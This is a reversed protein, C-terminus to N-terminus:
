GIRGLWLIHPRRSRLGCTDPFLPISICKSVCSWFLPLWSPFFCCSEGKQEGWGWGQGCLFLVEATVRLIEGEWIGVNGKFLSTESLELHINPNKGVVKESQQGRINSFACNYDLAQRHKKASRHSLLCLSPPSPQGETEVAANNVTALAHFHRFHGETSSTTCIHLPIYDATLFSSINGSPVVHISRSFM